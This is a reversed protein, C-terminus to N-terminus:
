EETPELPTESQIAEREALAYPDNPDAGELAAKFRDHNPRDIIIGPTPDDRAPGWRQAALEGWTFLAPAETGGLRDSWWRRLNM